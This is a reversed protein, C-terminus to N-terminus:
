YARGGFTTGGSSLPYSSSTMLKTFVVFDLVGDTFFHLETMGCYTLQSNHLIPFLFSHSFSSIM